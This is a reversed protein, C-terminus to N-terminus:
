PLRPRGSIIFMIIIIMVVPYSIYVWDPMVNAWKGFVVPLTAIMIPYLIDAIHIIPLKYRKRNDRIKKEQESEKSTFDYGEKSRDWNGLIAMLNTREDGIIGPFLGRSQNFKGNKKKKKINGFTCEL